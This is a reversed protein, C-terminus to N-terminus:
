RLSGETEHILQNMSNRIIYGDQADARVAKLQICLNVDLDAGGDPNPCAEATVNYHETEYEGASVPVGLQSLTLTYTGNVLLFREQANMLKDLAALAESREGRLIYNKYSPLAVSAVISVIVLTILIEILTFGRQSKNSM